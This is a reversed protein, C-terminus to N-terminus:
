AERIGTRIAARSLSGADWLIAPITDFENECSLGQGKSHSDQLPVAPFPIGAPKAGMAVVFLM